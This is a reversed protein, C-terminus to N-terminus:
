CSSPSSPGLWRCWWATWWRASCRTAPGRLWPCTSRIARGPARASTRPQDRGRTAAGGAAHLAAEYSCESMVTDLDLAGGGHAALQEIAQVYEPPHVQTLLACDVAPSELREYDLWDRRTLEREIASIRAPQEPHPGTQHGFSSPHELFVSRM